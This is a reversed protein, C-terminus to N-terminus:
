SCQQQQKQFYYSRAVQKALKRPLHHTEAILMDMFTSKGHHLHGVVAINRTLSPFRTM